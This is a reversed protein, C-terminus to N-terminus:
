YGVAVGDFGRSDNAGYLSNGERLIAAVHSWPSEVEIKYGMAELQVRTPSPLGNPEISVKDPQWQHHLRPADVAQDIPMNYDIVNIITQLVATIIRPGGPSGLVMFVKGSKTVITPSMSSLPTKGPAIANAKGQVLGYSNAVGVKATFDDMENNMLIGTNGAVKGIGFYSNLTYTVSVANGQKDVISYHTTQQGEHPAVGPRLLKSDGAQKPLITSRIAAAYNPDLLAEVPNKVFAPDGLASNRDIFGHRMAEVIYHISQPSQFGLKKLDYGSLINLVECLVVGGSSPPPASIIEYGRYRCTIPTLERPRYAAFDEAALIGGGENSARVIEEAIKGNYFGDSGQKQILRLSNGLNAQVLLGGREWGKGDKLFIAATPKDAAFTAFNKSLLVQHGASVVFGSEALDIAPQIMQFRTKTGYKSLAYELGAVTGPVGVGLWSTTSRGPVVTGQDDQFMTETAKLPARERFDIFSSRGDALRITMFGGGGLNGAAPYTVAMAYGVAVAADIANGGNELVEIGVKAANREAAVVMGHQSSVASSGANVPSSTGVSLLALAVFITRYRNM